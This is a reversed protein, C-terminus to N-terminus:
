TFCKGVESFLFIGIHRELRVKLDEIIVKKFYVKDLFYLDILFCEAKALSDNIKLINKCNKVFFCIKTSFHFLHKVLRHKILMFFFLNNM